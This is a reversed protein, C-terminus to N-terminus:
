NKEGAKKRQRSFLPVYLALTLIGIGILNMAREYDGTDACSKAENIVAETFGSEQVEQRLFLLAEEYLYSTVKLYARKM